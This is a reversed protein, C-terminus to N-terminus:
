VEVDRAPHGTLIGGIVWRSGASIDCGGWSCSSLLDRIERSDKLSEVVNRPFINDICKNLRM